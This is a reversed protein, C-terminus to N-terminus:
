KKVIKKTLSGFGNQLIVVYTGATLEEVPIAATSQQMYKGSFVIRGEVDYVAVTTSEALLENAFRITLIDHVPNPYLEFDVLSQHENVGAYMFSQVDFKALGNGSVREDIWGLAIENVSDRYAIKPHALLTIATTDNMGSQVQTWSSPSLLNVDNQVYKLLHNTSDLYVAEFKQSVDQYLIDPTMDNQGSNEIDLRYWFNTYHARKNYFGLLDYDSGDGLYDRDVLVVATVSASDNDTANQQVAIRPNRCVGIMTSSVSDLSEKAIWAGDVTSQNRGTFINGNRNSQVVLEEWAAFYRGNSASASRGYDLSVNRSFSITTTVTQRVGFTNGGDMSVISVISDYVPSYASYILGVSYPSAGVAPNKYDSAIAVDNVRDSGKSLNYPSSIFSGTRADYKDVYLVYTSAALNHNVGVLYLTLANTDTGAVVIDHTEYRIGSVFYQDITSWTYGGDISKRIIIGGQDTAEDSISTASYLWGNFASTLEVNRENQPTQNIMVDPGFQAQVAFCTVIMTLLTYIRKM